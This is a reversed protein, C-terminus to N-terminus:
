LEIGYDVGGRDLRRESPDLSPHEPALTTLLARAEPLTDTHRALERAAHDLDPSTITHGAAWTRWVSIAQDLAIDEARYGRLEILRRDHAELRMEAKACAFRATERREAAPRYAAELQDAHQASITARQDAQNAARELTRRTRWTANSARYRAVKADAADLGAQRRAQFVDHQDPAPIARAKDYAVRTETVAHELVPRDQAMTALLRDIMPVRERVDNQWRGLWDPEVARRRPGPSTPQREALQRRHTVAPTDARDTSLVRQLLDIAEPESDRDTVVLLQNHDRGRTAGVYLGRGTTTGTILTISQDTTIGQNGHETTAYALQVFESVYTAPLTVTAEGVQARATISGDDHTATITWRDRNRVSDGASTALTRDNRRTMVVDGVYVRGDAAVASRGTLVGAKLRATQIHHNILTAHENTTTTIALLRGKAQLEAWRDGITRLHQDLSGPEIRGRWRYEALVAPDGRRLRLSAAAEWPETFRHVQELEVTRTATKAIEPFMGGRAVAQLQHPDGVLVVRLDLRQALDTLRWLDPISVMGAEDVIVTTGRKLGWEPRPGGDRAHEHLLKALTDTRMGTEEELVRAAKATPAVGFVPRGQAHLDDIAVTLMSTKGAGAPGIIVVLRDGGAVEGAAAAQLVDLRGREISTSPSPEVGQASLAWALLDLEQDIVKQSSWRPAVPEIWVSRGDSGRGEEGDRQDPDLGVCADIVQALARDLVGAWREGDIGRRPQFRDTIERLVDLDHWVSKRESLATVIEAVTTKAPESQARGATNVADIVSRPTYGLDRAEQRWVSRLEAAATGTKKVRTDAAAEREIAAREFRSPARGERAEFEEIRADTEVDVQAARKSFVGLLEPDLGIIEAQGNVIPEWGVGFKATLESRLVSQYVGGFTRQHQKLVRADLAMWRGDVTQVKASVVLHTHIQPDDLRSTTQRFGAVSLGLTDLHLRGGNSRVRTTAAWQELSDVVARVAVDHCELLRDDGTLAWLVSLSKPASLTADFGAVAKVVRGDATTRDTLARGLSRGSVPDLGALLAQLQEGEVTGVLGLGDAQAGMWVGPVEGPAQTLYKTYYAASSSASSAYLTTVRM